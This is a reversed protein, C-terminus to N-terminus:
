AAVAFGGIANSYGVLTTGDSGYLETINGPTTAAAKFIAAIGSTPAQFTQTRTWTNVHDFNIALDIEDLIQNILLSEDESEISISGSDIDSLPISEETHDLGYDSRIVLPRISM